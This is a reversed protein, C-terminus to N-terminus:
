KIKNEKDYLLIVDTYYVIFIATLLSYIVEESSRWWTYLWMNYRNMLEARLYLIVDKYDNYDQEEFVKKKYYKVYVKGEKDIYFKASIIYDPSNFTFEKEKYNSIVKIFANIIWEIWALELRIGDCQWYKSHLTYDSKEFELMINHIKDVMRWSIFDMNKRNFIESVPKYGIEM